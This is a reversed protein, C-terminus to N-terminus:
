PAALLGGAAAAPLLLSSGLPPRPQRALLGPAVNQARGTQIAINLNRVGNTVPQAVMPGIVPVSNAFGALADLGRGLLLAGTNSNNVASGVPQVQVYSAVRANARLNALEDPSFFLSLKRDGIANLAKNFASQSVKGVDDAAGNLAKEKVHALIANRIAERPANQAVAQADAVSGNIVFQQVFKDPQAGNVAAEVPRSSERWNFRAAAEARARNLADMFNGAQVDQNRLFEAGQQTVVQNGGFTNKVPNVPTSDIARRAISLAARANGNAGAARQAAAIDTLLNDLAKADFPVHFTQGNRTIQGASINNLTTSIDEPLYALKNERNLANLINDVFAKRDLPIDGGPMGRAQEYLGTVRRALANDRGEISVIAAAGAGFLDGERAGADNLNRILTANNQNQIRALGQLEGDASNAGTKALNMERTIQVPDQTIAGRTPTLGTMRFDALRRVAAPDLEQGTNLAQALDQRLSQRVREPVQSYDVGARNMIANIQVDLQQTSPGGTMNRVMNRGANVTSQLAGPVFGGAVGGTLAAAGQVLPSAGAEGAAGGALGAGAASTLQQPMNASLLQGVNQPAGVTAAQERGAFQLLPSVAGGALRTVAGLGGSGAVLRTADGIVRENADAPKPLGIYDAFQTALAGLPMSKPPKSQGTVLDSLTLHRDPTFLDTVARIPETVLQATNALGELGYRATLGLQRPIDSIANSTAAGAKVALPANESPVPVPKLQATIGKMIDDYPSPAVGQTAAAFAADYDSM